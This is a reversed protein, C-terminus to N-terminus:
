GRVSNLFASYGLSTFHKRYLEYVLPVCNLPSLDSWSLNRCLDGKVLVAPVMRVEYLKIIESFILHPSPDPHLKGRTSIQKVLNFGVNTNSLIDTVKVKRLQNGTNRIDVPLPNGMSTPPMKEQMM